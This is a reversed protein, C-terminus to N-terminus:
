EYERERGRKRRIKERERGVEKARKVEGGERETEGGESGRGKTWAEMERLNGERM